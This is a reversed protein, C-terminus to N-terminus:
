SCNIMTTSAPPTVNAGVFATVFCTSVMCLTYHHETTMFLQGVMHKAQGRLNHGLAACCLATIPHNTNAGFVQGALEM